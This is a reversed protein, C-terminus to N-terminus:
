VDGRKHSARPAANSSGKAGHPRVLMTAAILGALFLLGFLVILAVTL